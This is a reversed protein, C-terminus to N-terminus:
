CFPCQLPLPPPVISAWSAFISSCTSHCGLRAQAAEGAGMQHNLQGLGNGQAHPHFATDKGQIGKLRLLSLAARQHTGLPEPYRNLSWAPRPLLELLHLSGPHSAVVAAAARCDSPGAAGAGHPCCHCICSMSSCCHQRSPLQPGFLLRRSICHLHDKARHQLM